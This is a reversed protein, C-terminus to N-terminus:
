AAGAPVIEVAMGPFAERFAADLDRVIGALVAQAIAACTVCRPLHGYTDLFV